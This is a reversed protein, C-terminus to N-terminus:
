SIRYNRRLDLRDEFIKEGKWGQPAVYADGPITVQVTKPPGSSKAPEKAVPAISPKADPAPQKVQNVTSVIPQSETLVYTAGIAVLSVVIVGISYQIINSM